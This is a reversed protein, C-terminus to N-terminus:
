RPWIAWCALGPRCRATRAKAAGTAATTTAWWMGARPTSRPPWAEYRGMHEGLGHVIQVTGHAEGAIPWRHLQLRCGDATILGDMTGM